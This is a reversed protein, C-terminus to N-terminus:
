AVTVATFSYQFTFAKKACAQPLDGIEINSTVTKEEGALLTPTGPFSTKAVAGATVGSSCANDEPAISFGTPTIPATLQVPFSNDNKVRLAMTTKFGPYVKGAVTASATLPIIDAAEATGSGTGGITWGNAAWAAAGAGVALVATATIIASRKTMKRM